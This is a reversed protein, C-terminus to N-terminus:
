HDAENVISSCLRHLHNHTIDLLSFALLRPLPFSHTTSRELLPISRSWWLSSREKASLVLLRWALFRQTAKPDGEQDGLEKFVYKVGGLNEYLIGARNRDIRWEVREVDEEDRGSLTGLRVCREVVFCLLRITTCSVEDLFKTVNYVKGHLLMWLDERTGHAKLTELTYPHSEEVPKEGADVVPAPASSSSADSSM